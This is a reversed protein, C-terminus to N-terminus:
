RGVKEIANEAVLTPSRAVQDLTMITEKSVNFENAIKAIDISARNDRLLKYINILDNETVRGQLRRPLQGMYGKEALLKKEEKHRVISALGMSAGSTPAMIETTHVVNWTKMVSLIKNDMQNDNVEPSHTVVGGKEKWLLENQQGRKNLVQRASKEVTGAPVKSFRNGM